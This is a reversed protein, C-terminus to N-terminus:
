KVTKAKKIQFMICMQQKLKKDTRKELEAINISPNASFIDLEIKERVTPYLRKM